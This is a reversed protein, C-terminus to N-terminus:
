HRSGSTRVCRAALANAFKPNLLPVLIMANSTDRQNRLECEFRGCPHAIALVYNGPTLEFETVVAWLLRASRLLRRRSLSPWRRRRGAPGLLRRLERLWRL